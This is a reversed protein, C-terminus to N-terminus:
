ILNSGLSTNMDVNNSSCGSTLEGFAENLSQIYEVRSYINTLVNSLTAHNDVIDWTSGLSTNLDSIKFNHDTTLVRSTINTLLSSCTVNYNIGFADICSKNYCMIM